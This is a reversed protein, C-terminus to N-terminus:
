TTSTTYCSTARPPMIPRQRDRHSPSCIHNTAQVYAGVGMVLLSRHLKHYHRLRRVTLRARPRLTLRNRLRVPDRWNSVANSVSDLM